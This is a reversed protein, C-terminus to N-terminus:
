IVSIKSYIELSRVLFLHVPKKTRKLPLVGIKQCRADIDVAPGEKIFESDASLYAMLGEIRNELELLRNFRSQVAIV